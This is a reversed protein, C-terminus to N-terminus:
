GEDSTEKLSITRTADDCVVLDKLAFLVGTEVAVTYSIGGKTANAQYKLVENQLRQWTKNCMAWTIRQDTGGSERSIVFGKGDVEQVKYKRGTRSHFVRGVKVHKFM